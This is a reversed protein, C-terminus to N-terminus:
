LDNLKTFEEAKESYIRTLERSKENARRALSRSRKFYYGLFAFLILVVGGGIGLTLGIILNDSNPATVVTPKITPKTTPKSASGTTSAITPRSTPIGTTPKPTPTVQQIGTVRLANVAASLHMQNASVINTLVNSPLVTASGGVPLKVYFEVVNNNGLIMPYGPRIHVNGQNFVVNQNQLSCTQYQSQCYRTVVIALGAKFQDRYNSAWLISNSYEFTAQVSNAIENSNPTAPTPQVYNSPKIECKGDMFVLGPRCICYYYTPTNRCLETPQCSDTGATCEDVDICNKKGTDLQYGQRCSCFYGGNTNNCNQSCGGNNILCENIDTCNGNMDKRYGKRCTCVQNGGQMQCFHMGCSNPQPCPATANCTRMDPNLAFNTNCSCNYGGMTNICIQQCDNTSNCENIDQCTRGDMALYYGSPCTCRYSGITNVCISGCNGNSVQCENIDICNVGNGSFGVPCSGCTFGPLGASAPKDTCTVGPFCADANAACGDIDSECRSGTYGASCQCPVAAFAEGVASNWMCQGNMSCNCMNVVPTFTSSKGKSDTAIFTLSVPNASSVDWSFSGVASGNVFNIGKPLNGTLTFNINYGNPSTATIVFSENSGVTVNISSPGIMSPPEHDSAYRLSIFSLLTLTVTKGLEEKERTLTQGVIKSQNGVGISNTVAVDFLCAPDSGCVDTANGQLEPTSFNVNNTFVPQYDLSSPPNGVLLRLNASVAWTLGIGHIEQPTKTSINHQVGSSSTFDNSAVGDWLGLLGETNNFYDRSLSISSDLINDPRLSSQIVTGSEFEATITTGNVTVYIAGNGFTVSQNGVMQLTRNYYVDVQKTVNNAKFEIIGSNGEYGGVANFVTAGAGNSVEVCRSQFEFPVASATRNRVLTFDGLGNFTYTLSDLTTFHPDGWFWSLRPPRRCNGSPYQRYFQLCLAIPTQSNCCFSHGSTDLRGQSFRAVFGGNINTPGRQYAGFGPRRLRYCCRRSLGNRTFRTRYCIHNAISADFQFRRDFLIQGFSCPCRLPNGVPTAQALFARCSGESLRRTANTLAFRWYGRQGTNTKMGTLVQSIGLTGSKSISQYRAPMSRGASWGAVPLGVRINTLLSNDAPLSWMIGNRPYRFLTYTSIGDTLLQLQFSNQMTSNPQAGDALINEWTVQLGWTANFNPKQFGTRIENSYTTLLDMRLTEYYTGTCNPQQSSALCWFPSIATLGRIAASSGFPVPYKIWSNRNFTVMGNGCIYAKYYLKGYIPLGISQPINVSPCTAGCPVAMNKSFPRLNGSDSAPTPQPTLTSTPNTPPAISSSFMMTTQMSMTSEFGTTISSTVVVATSETILVDSDSFLFLSMSEQASVPATIFCGLVIALVALKLM